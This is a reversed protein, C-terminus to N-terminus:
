GSWCTSCHFMGALLRPMETNADSVDDGETFGADDHKVSKLTAYLTSIGPVFALAGDLM